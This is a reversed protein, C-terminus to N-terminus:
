LWNGADQRGIIAMIEVIEGEITYYVSDKGCLSRRYGKLVDVLPYMEPQKVLTEFHDFFDANYKDAAEIGWREAGYNWIRELDATANPSLRYNAM